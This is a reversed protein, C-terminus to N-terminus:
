EAAALVEAPRRTELLSEILAPFQRGMGKRRFLRLMLRAESLVMLPLQPPRGMISAIQFAKRETWYWREVTAIAADLSGRRLMAARARYRLKNEPHAAGKALATTVRAKFDICAAGEGFAADIAAKAAEMAGLGRGRAQRFALAGRDLNRDTTKM